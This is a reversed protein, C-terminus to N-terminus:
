STGLMTIQLAFLFLLRVVEEIEEQSDVFFHEILWEIVVEIAVNEIYIEIEDMCTVGLWRAHVSHVDSTRLM